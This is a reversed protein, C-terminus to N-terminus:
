SPPASIGLCGGVEDGYGPDNNYWSTNDFWDPTGMAVSWNAVYTFQSVANPLSSCSPDGNCLEFDGNQILNQGVLNFAFFNFVIGLLAYKM